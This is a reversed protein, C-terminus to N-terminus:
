KGKKRAVTKFINTNVDRKEEEGETIGRGTETGEALKVAEHNESNPAVVTIEKWDPSHMIAWDKTIGLRKLTIDRLYDFCDKKVQATIYDIVKLRGYINILDDKPLSFKKENKNM